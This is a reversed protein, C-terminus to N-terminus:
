SAVERALMSRTEALTPVYGTGGQGRVSLAAAATGLRAADLLGDGLALRAAVTGTFVDGAGTQDVVERAPVAPLEAVGAGTDILVGQAGRTLAVAPAGLARVAAVADRPSAREALGLLRRAEEPWSPTVLEARPALERLTRAASAADTLRPRFNPDYVFRRALAAARLVAAHATPSVAAAIGSALVVASGAVLEETVDGPCLQSGASGSRAYAFQRKGEPDIHTLYVGHQGPVRVLAGTDIGLEAIRAVLGDGLEDDPVRALLATRAGAAAAAAAANLADGSFRLRVLTDNRLPEAASLEVLPEGLVLVDFSVPSVPSASSVM